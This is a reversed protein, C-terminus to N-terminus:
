VYVGGGLLREGEYLALIQGSALGRQPETFRVLATDNGEPIFEIPTRPDRYRVRGELRRPTTIPAANWQLSQVRV